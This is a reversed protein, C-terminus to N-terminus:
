GGRGGVPRWSPRVRTGTVGQNGEGRPEGRRAVRGVFRVAVRLVSIEPTQGLSTVRAGAGAKCRYRRNRGDDHRVRQRREERRSRAGAHAWPVRHGRGAAATAAASAAEWYAGTAAFRVAIGASLTAHHELVSLLPGSARGDLYPVERRRARPTPRGGRMRQDFLGCRRDVARRRGQARGRQPGRRTPRSVHGLVARSTSRVNPDGRRGADALPDVTPARIGTNTLVTDGACVLPAGRGLGEGKPLKGGLWSPAAVTQTGPRDTSTPRASAAPRM